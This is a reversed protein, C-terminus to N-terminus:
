PTLILGKYSYCWAKPQLNYDVNSVEAPYPYYWPQQM